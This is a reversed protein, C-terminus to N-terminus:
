RFKFLSDKRRQMSQILGQARETISIVEDTQQQTNNIKSRQIDLEQTIGMAVREADAIANRANQLTENQNRIKINNNM